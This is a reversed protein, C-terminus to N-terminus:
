GADREIRKGQDARLSVGGLVSGLVDGLTGNGSEGTTGNGMGMNGLMSCGSGMLLVAAALTMYIKKM